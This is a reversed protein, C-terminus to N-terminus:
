APGSPHSLPGGGGGGRVVVANISGIAALNPYRRSFIHYQEYHRRIVPFKRKKKGELLCMEKRKAFEEIIENRIEHAVGNVAVLEM